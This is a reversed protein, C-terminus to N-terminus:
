PSLLNHQWKDDILNSVVRNHLRNKRGQWFEIEYILIEIGGWHSPRVLNSNKNKELFEAHRDLM